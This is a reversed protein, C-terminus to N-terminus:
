FAPMAENCTPFLKQLIQISAKIEEETRGKMPVSVFLKKM